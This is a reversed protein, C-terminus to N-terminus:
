EVTIGANKIVTTWQAIDSKIFAAFQEPTGMFLTYGDPAAKAAM